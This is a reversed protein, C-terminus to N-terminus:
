DRVSLQVSFLTILYIGYLFLMVIGHNRTLPRSRVILFLLLGNALISFIGLIYVIEKTFVIPNIMAAIGLVLTLNTMTSGIADGIALGYARKRVAQLDIALEPLSTGIALITAGIFSKALNLGAALKIASEVVFASSIIVVVIGVAFLLFTHLAEKITIQNTTMPVPQKRKLLYYVFLIFMCILLAGSYVDLGELVIITMTIVSVVLLIFAAEGWEERKTKIGYIAAALGMVLLVDAINSGFVNGITISAANQTASVISVSLEPLSTSVSILLFGVALQGVKFYGALKIASEIIKESAKALILLSAVLVVLDFFVM